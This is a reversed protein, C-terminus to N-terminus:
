EEAMAELFHLFEGVDEVFDAYAAGLNDLLGRIRGWDLEHGYAHRVLHRFRLYEDLKSRTEQTIVRPRLQPIELAMNRLLQSHWGGGTPLGEGLELAVRRFLNEAGNYFAHLNLAIGSLELFDPTREACQADAEDLVAKVKALESLESQIEITLRRIESGTM